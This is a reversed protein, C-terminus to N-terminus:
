VAPTPVVPLPNLYDEGWGAAVRTRQIRRILGLPTKSAQITDVDEFSMEVAIPAKFMTYGQSVLRALNQTLGLPISQIALSVATSKDTAIVGGTSPDRRGSFIGERSVEFNWNRRPHWSSIKRTISTAKRVNGHFDVVEPTVIVQYTNNENRFELYLAKAVADKLTKVESM